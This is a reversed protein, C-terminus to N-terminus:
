RPLASIIEGAIKEPSLMGDVILDCNERVRNNVAIYFDRGTRIYWNLHERLNKIFTEPDAEWPMFEGKRLIKRAHAIELPIDVLVVFDILERLADCGRGFPEELILFRAPKIEARTEPHVITEGNKLKQIDAVLQPSQFQNPDAGEKLWQVTPPYISSAEYEDLSLSIADGLMEVLEKILTSKGAGSHGTIAIVFIRDSVAEEESSVSLQHSSM